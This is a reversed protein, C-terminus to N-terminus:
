SKEEVFLASQLHELLGQLEALSGYESDEDERYEPGDYERCLKEVFMNVTILMLERIDAIGMSVGHCDDGFNVWENNFSVLRSSSEADIGIIFNRKYNVEFRCSSYPKKDEETAAKDIRSYEKIQLGLLKFIAMLEDKTTDVIKKSLIADIDSNTLKKM